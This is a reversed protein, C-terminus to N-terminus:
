RISHYDIGYYDLHLAASGLQDDNNRGVDITRAKVPSTAAPDLGM